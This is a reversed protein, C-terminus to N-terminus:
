DSRERALSVDHAGTLHALQNLVTDYNVRWGAFAEWAADGTRDMALGVDALAAIVRDFESRDVSIPDDPSPNPDHTFGFQDAIERLALFGSRICLQADPDGAEHIAEHIATADLLAGVAGVWTRYPHSSQFMAVAPLATHTERIEAFTMRWDTWLERLEQWGDILHVRTLLEIPRPPEGAYSELATIATERSTYASYMTPLYTVLLIGLVSITLGASLFSAVLRPVDDVDYFGITFASSGALKFADVLPETGLGWFVFTFGTLSLSLWAIPLTLLAAPAYLSYIRHRVRRNRALRAFPTFIARMVGFVIRTLRPPQGHPLVVTRAASTVTALVILIGVVLAISQGLM